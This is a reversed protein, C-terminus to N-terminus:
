QIMSTIENHIMEQYKQFKGDNLYDNDSCGSMDLLQELSKGETSHNIERNIKEAIISMFLQPNNKRLYLLREMESITVMWYYNDNEVPCDPSDFFYDIVEGKLYTEYLLIIKIYKGNNISDETIKLQNVAKLLTNRAYKEIAGIDSNQQKAALFLLSSKQEIIIKASGVNIEWDARKECEEDIRRYEGPLLCNSLLQQFYAEFCKGFFSTFMEARYGADRLGDRITWQVSQELISLNLFPSISVIENHGTRVFPKSYFIQRKLESKRIDEYSISYKSAVEEVRKKIESSRFFTHDLIDSLSDFKQFAFWLYQQIAIMSKWSMGTIEQFLADINLGDPITSGIDMLIYLERYLNDYVTGIAQHKFQEGGFGYVYYMLKTQSSQWESLMESEHRSRFNDVAVVLAYLEDDEEINRNRFDNSYLIEYYALDILGWAQIIVPQLSKRKTVTNVMPLMVYEIGKAKSDSQFIKTTERNIKKLVSDASFTRLVRSVDSDLGSFNYKVIHKIHLPVSM